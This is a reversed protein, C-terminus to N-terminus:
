IVSLVEVGVNTLRHIPINADTSCHGGSSGPSPPHNTLNATFWDDSYISNGGSVFRSTVGDKVKVLEGENDLKVKVNQNNSTLNLESTYFKVNSM